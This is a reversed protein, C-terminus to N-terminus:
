FYRLLEFDVKVPFTHFHLATFQALAELRKRVASRVENVM